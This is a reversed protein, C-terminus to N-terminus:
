MVWLLDCLENGAKNAEAEANRIAEMHAIYHPANKLATVKANAERLRELYPNLLAARRTKNM